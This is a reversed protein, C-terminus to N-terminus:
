VKWRVMKPSRQKPPKSSYSFGFEGGLPQIPNSNGFDHYDPNKVLGFWFLIPFIM